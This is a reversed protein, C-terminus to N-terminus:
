ECVVTYVGSTVVKSTTGDEFRCGDELTAVAHMQTPIQLQLQVTNSVRRWSVEVRGSPALHYASAHTLAPIFSPRIALTDVGEGNPNLRLGAICKIFWASVDGWFHHNTSSVKDPFFNEWLTTAGRKIWNGYSPYDERTIMKFALDSRGFASLVHFLVRCGMAGVDIHDDAEHILRVLHAFAAAEEDPEFMGYHLCLAQGAQCNGRVLGTELDICHTRLAARYAAAEGRAFDAEATMGVAEFMQASKAAMDSSVATAIVELPVKPTIGGVHVWDGLGFCVLGDDNSRARLYRLYALISPAAQTIIATEGRYLYTYYPLYAVVRDFTPGNGWDFGWGGTPVIGPLSGDERQVKYVSHLWERYNREPDFNLLMAEASIAADGTWGHKERHPCDTPFHHFNSLFSRQAMVQITTATPDSCSFDGRKHLDTHYVLFTLLDETAQEKTIGDVRVYRFGHYTFTPQYVEEGEGKCTYTDRHVIHRDREWFERMYWIYDLHLDGDKLSDAHQLGITQGKAGRIRLRCVGSFCVGFDYIYSDGCPLIRVPRLEQTKVIPAVDALRLEGKPPTAPLAHEWHSDDFATETWGEIEYNADYHEGFRYDDWRIASPAIKFSRDSVLLDEEGATVSLAVMPASRFSAKDLDWIYGTPNNQLGNGLLLAVVNEGESLSIEYEDYYILHDTNSIYPSLLGRTIREGNFYLDYFGCAAVTIRGTKNGNASFSRRFCYAPVAKEITNYERTAQIFHEKLNM